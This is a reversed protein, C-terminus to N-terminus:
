GPDIHPLSLWHAAKMWNKSPHAELLYEALWLLLGSTFDQSEHRQQKAGATSQVSQNIASVIQTQSQRQKEENKQEWLKVNSKRAATACISPRM